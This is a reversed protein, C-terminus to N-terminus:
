KTDYKTVKREAKPLQFTRGSDPLTSCPPPTLLLYFIFSVLEMSYLEEQSALQEEVLRAIGRM